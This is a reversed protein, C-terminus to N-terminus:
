IRKLKAPLMADFVMPTFNKTKVDLEAPIGFKMNYQDYLIQHTVKKGGAGYVEVTISGPNQLMYLVLPTNHQHEGLVSDENVIRSGNAAVIARDHSTFIILKEVFRNANEQLIVPLRIRTYTTTMLSLKTSTEFM